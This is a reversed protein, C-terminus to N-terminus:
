PQVKQAPLRAHGKKVKNGSGGLLWMGRMQDVLKQLSSATTQAQVLLVPLQQSADKLNSTIAPTANSLDGRAKQVNSMSASAKDLEM